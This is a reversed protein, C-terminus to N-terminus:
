LRALLQRPAIWSAMLGGIAKITTPRIRLAARLHRRAERRDGIRLLDGGAWLHQESRRRNILRRSSALRPDKLIELDCRVSALHGELADAHTQSGGHVRFYMLREPTYYAAKGTRALLYGTWIDDSHAVESFFDAPSLAERRFVCAGFGISGWGVALDFFPRHLGEQLGARGRVRTREETAPWDVNGEGDVVFHDSFAVVVDENAELPPVLAALMRPAWWDDDNLVAVYRGTALAFGALFNELPGTADPHEVWRVRPDYIEQQLARTHDPNGNNSVVVELDRFEGDLVSTLSTRLLAPRNHTPIVVSVCPMPRDAAKTADEM